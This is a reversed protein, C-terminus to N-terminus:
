AGVIARTRKALSSEFSRRPVGLEKRLPGRELAKRVAGPLLAALQPAAFGGPHAEEFGALARQYGSQGPVRRVGDVLAAVFEARQVAGFPVFGREFTACGSPDAGFTAVRAGFRDLMPGIPLLLAPHSRLGSAARLPYHRHGEAALLQRYLEGALTYAGGYRAREAPSASQVLGSFRSRLDAPLGAGAASLGQNVDGANHSLVAAAALVDIERGPRRCLEVFLRAERELEAHLADQLGRARESAAASGADAAGVVDVLAGALISLREGDLGGVIEAPVATRHDGGPGCAVARASFGRLDWEVLRLVLHHMREREMEDAQDNWLARRIKADVDTPVYSSASAWHAALCLAFYDAVDAGTPKESPVLRDACLLVRWWGLPGAALDTLRADVPADPVHDARPCRRDFLYPAGVAVQSVLTAPGVFGGFAGRPERGGRELVAALDFRVGADLM